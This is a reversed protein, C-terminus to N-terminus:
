DPSRISEVARVAADAYPSLVVSAGHGRLMTADKDGHSRVAFRGQFGAARLGNMVILRADEHVLGRTPPPTAIIAWGAGALPLSAPFEPDAADGYVGIRGSRRWVRLAEPDFDVGLVRTGSAELV